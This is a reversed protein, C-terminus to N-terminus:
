PMSESMNLRGGFNQGDKMIRLGKTTLADIRVPRIYYNIIIHNLNAIGEYDPCRNPCDLLYGQLEIDGQCIRLGKTTLADIRVPRSDFPYDCM